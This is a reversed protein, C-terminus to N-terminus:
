CYRLPCDSAVPWAEREGHHLTYLPTLADVTPAAPVAALLKLQPCRQPLSPRHQLLERHVAPPVLIEGLDSLIDLADLEDLHLRAPTPM